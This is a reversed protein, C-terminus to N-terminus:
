TTSKNLFRFSSSTLFLLLSTVGSHSGWPQLSSSFLMSIVRPSGPFVVGPGLLLFFNWIGSDGRFMVGSVWPLFAIRLLNFNAPGDAWHRALYGTAPNDKNIGGVGWLLGPLPFRLGRPTSSRGSPTKQGDLFDDFFHGRM